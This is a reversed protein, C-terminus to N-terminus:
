RLRRYYVWEHLDVHDNREEIARKVMGGDGRPYDEFPLTQVVDRRVAVLKHNLNEEARHQRNEVLYIERIFIGSIKQEELLKPDVVEFFNPAVYDDDDIVTVYPYNGQAYAHQKARGRHGPVGATVHVKVDFPANSAAVHVSDIAQQVWEKPTHDSVIVIADIM